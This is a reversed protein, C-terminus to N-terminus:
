DFILHVGSQGVPVFTPEVGFVERIREASLVEAAAGNAVVRGRDLLVIQDAFRAALNLDHVVGVTAVDPADTFTRV